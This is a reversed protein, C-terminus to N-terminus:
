LQVLPADWQPLLGGAGLVCNHVVSLSQLLEDRCVCVTFNNDAVARLGTECLVSQICTANVFRSNPIKTTRSPTNDNSVHNERSM